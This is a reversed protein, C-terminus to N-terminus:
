PLSRSSLDALGLDRRTAHPDELEVGGPGSLIARLTGEELEFDLELGTKTALASSLALGLGSRLHDGNSRDKRWFPEALLRLDDPSLEYAENQVVFRWRKETREIRCEVVTGPPSYALANSLLNSVIIPLVEPDGLVLTGTAVLNEVRGSGRRELGAFPRLCERVIKGLDVPEREFREAGMELRALKLLTSVSRGMRWAVDRIAALARQAGGADRDNRLAVESATLIESIPTRLEHAIDATTRRERQLAADVRRVLADTKDGLPRLESPLEGLELSRPLHQVDLAEVVAALRRAPKLGRDVAIWSLVGLTAILVLCAAACQLLITREAAILDEVGRAVVVRIRAPIPRDPGEEPYVHHIEIIQGVYRGERGDPLPATWHIPESGLTEPAALDQSALTESREFAPGGELWLEFYAPNEARDYEPMLEQSFEFEIQDGVQFLISAFGQVRDALNRDFQDELSRTVVLSVAIGAGLLVLSAGGLLRRLLYSRISRM